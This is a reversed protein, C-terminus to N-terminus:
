KQDEEPQLQHWRRARAEAEERTQGVIIVAGRPKEKEDVIWAVWHPGRQESRVTAAAVSQESM